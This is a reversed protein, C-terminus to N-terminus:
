IEGVPKTKETTKKKESFCFCLHEEEKFPHFNWNRPKNAEFKKLSFFDSSALLAERQPTTFFDRSRNRRKVTLFQELVQLIM